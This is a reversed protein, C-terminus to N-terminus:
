DQDGHILMTSAQIKAAHNVPSFANLQAEDRGIVRELNLGAGHQNVTILINTDRDFVCERHALRQLGGIFRDFPNFDILTSM